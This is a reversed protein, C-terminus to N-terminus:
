KSKKDGKEEDWKEIDGEIDVMMKKQLLKRAAAVQLDRVHDKDKMETIVMLEFKSMMANIKQSM